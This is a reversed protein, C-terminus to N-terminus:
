GNLNGISIKPFIDNNRLEMRLYTYTKKFWEIASARLIGASM